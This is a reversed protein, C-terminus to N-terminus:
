SFAALSSTVREMNESSVTFTLSDVPVSEEILLKYATEGVFGKSVAFRITDGEVPVYDDGDKKLKLTLTLTDGKTITINNENDIKLM